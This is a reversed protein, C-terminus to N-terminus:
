TDFISTNERSDFDWNNHFVSTNIIAFKALAHRFVETGAGCPQQVENSRGERQKMKMKETSALEPMSMCKSKCCFQLSKSRLYRKFVGKGLSLVANKKYRCQASVSNKNAPYNEIFYGVRFKRILHPM